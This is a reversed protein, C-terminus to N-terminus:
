REGGGNVRAGVVPVFWVAYGLPDLINEIMADFHAAADRATFSTREAIANVYGDKWASLIEAFTERPVRLTDVVVYDVTIDALGLSALIGFANRGAFLDTGTREGFEPAGIQWFRNPDNPGRRFQLMGYDEPILHLRGGPRTVRALEAYVKAAYPISHVVHRCVALDFTGDAARLEYVSQNEFSLRPALRAHRSRALDLSEDLVDVGLVRAESFLEALRSAGEGTGCGADLIRLPGRLGYRRLLASEQPWIARAQADLTRVMSGDLMQERQPNLDRVPADSGPVSWATRAAWAEAAQQVLDCVPDKLDSYRGRDAGCLEALGRKARAYAEAAQPEARLYDRFLLAYRRNPAASPRVHVHIARQGAPAVFYLKEWGAPDGGPPVHDSVIGPRHTWGDAILREAIAGPPSLSRVAVQVDIVDKAELGPVATSGIHEISLALPGLARSLRIRIGDFETAWVRDHQVLRVRAPEAPTAFRLAGAERGPGAPIFGCRELVRMSALNSPTTEAVVRDVDRKALAWRVLCAVAETAYGRRQRDSSTGYGIEVEGGAPRGRFGGSGVLRAPSGDAPRAIWYWVRWGIEVPDDLHKAEAGLIERVAEPPWDPPVEADLARSLAEAGRMEARVLAATGAVLFLRPTELRM